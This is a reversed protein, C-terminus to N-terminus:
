ISAHSKLIREEVQQVGNPTIHVRKLAKDYELLRMDHLPQLVRNRFNGASSYEVSKFLDNEATWSAKGHLLLLTQDEPSMNPDLVRTTGGTAAWVLSHKREVLINVVSQAEEPSVDHWVRILEALIWSSMAYVATADMFNPDVDGGVHGVNRHNRIELLPLLMKPILIRLSNDGILIRGKNELSRCAAVMDRPGKSVADAFKGNISGEIICYVAECFKAGNLESPEWRHEIYNAVIAQYSQLLPTRLGEPIATLLTSLDIV